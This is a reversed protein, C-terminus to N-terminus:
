RRSLTPLKALWTESTPVQYGIRGEDSALQEHVLVNGVDYDLPTDTVTLGRSDPGLESYTLRFSPWVRLALCPLRHTKSMHRLGAIRMALMDLKQIM